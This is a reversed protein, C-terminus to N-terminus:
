KKCKKTNNVNQIEKSMQKCKDQREKWKTNNVKSKNQTNGKKSNANVSTECTYRNSGKLGKKCKGGKNKYMNQM